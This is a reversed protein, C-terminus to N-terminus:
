VIHNLIYNIHQIQFSNVYEDTHPPYNPNEKKNKVTIKMITHWIYIYPSSLPLESWYEQRSSGMSPPAQQTCDMSDILTQCSQAVESESKVKM